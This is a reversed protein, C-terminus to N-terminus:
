RTVPPDVVESFCRNQINERRAELERPLKTWNSAQMTEHQKETLKGFYANGLCECYAEVEAESLAIGASRLQRENAPVCATQHGYKYATIIEDSAPQALALPTALLLPALLVGRHTFLRM